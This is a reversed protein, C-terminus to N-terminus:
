EPDNEIEETQIDGTMKLIYEIVLLSALSAIIPPVASHLIAPIVFGFLLAAAAHYIVLYGQLNEIREALSSSLKMAYVFDELRNRTLLIDANNQDIDTGASIAVRLDVDQLASVFGGTIYATTNNAEHLDHLLNEKEISTPAHVVNDLDLKRRLIESSEWTGNTILHLDVDMDKLDNVATECEPIMPKIAAIIGIIKKEEAFIMVRKGEVYLENIKDRWEEYPIQKDIIEDLSGATYRSMTSFQHRGHAGLKAFEEANINSIRRSRLYHTIAKAFPKNNRSELAYVIYELRGTSIGDAAIFDTVVFENGTITGDQEMIAAETKGVTELAKTSRFLVHRSAAQRAAFMVANGAALAMSELSACCLVSLFVTAAFFFDKGSFMWGTFSLLSFAVTFLVLYKEMNRYPTRFNGDEATKEALQAFQMMATDNGIREARIEAYGSICRSNAYVYSGESKEVPLDTGTLASENMVAFGSTVRGDAPVIEGPRVVVIQDKKLSQTDMQHEKHNEYVSTSVPLQKRVEDLPRRMQDRNHDILILQAKAITLISAAHFFFLSCSRGKAAAAFGFIVALLSGAASLVYTDATKQKLSQLCSSYVDSATLLIVPLPVWAAWVPAKLIVFLLLVLCMAGPIFLPRLLDEETIEPEERIIPIEHTYAIYGCDKVADIISKENLLDPNYDIDMTGSSVSVKVNIIGNLSSVKREITDASTQIRINAVSFTKHIFAM